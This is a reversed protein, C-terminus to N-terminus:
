GPSSPFTRPGYLREQLEADRHLLAFAREKRERYERVEKTEKVEPKAKPAVYPKSAAREDRERRRRIARAHSSFVWWEMAAFAREDRYTEGNVKGDWLLFSEIERRTHGRVSARYETGCFPCHRLVYGGAEPTQDAEDAPTNRLSYLCWACRLALPAREELKSLRAALSM